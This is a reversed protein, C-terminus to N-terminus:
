FDNFRAVDEENYPTFEDIGNKLCLWDRVQIIWTDEGDPITWANSAPFWVADDWYYSQFLIAKSTRFRVYGEFTHVSM